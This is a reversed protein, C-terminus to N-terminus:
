RIAHTLATAGYYTALNINIHPNNLLMKIYSTKEQGCAKILATFGDLGRLNVNVYPHSILM